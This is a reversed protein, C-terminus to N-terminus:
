RDMNKGSAKDKYWRVEQGDAYAKAWRELDAIQSRQDQRKTSVRIYIAIMTSVELFLYRCLYVDHSLVFAPAVEGLRALGPRSGHRDTSRRWSCPSRTWHGSPM